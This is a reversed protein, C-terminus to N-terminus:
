IVASIASFASFYKQTLFDSGILKMKACKAGQRSLRNRAFDCLVSLFKKTNFSLSERFVLLRLKKRKKACKAGQRSVRGREYRNPRRSFGAACSGTFGM